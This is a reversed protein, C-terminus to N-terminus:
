RCESKDEILGREILEDRAIAYAIRREPEVQHWNMKANTECPEGRLIEEASSLALRHFPTFREGIGKSFSVWVYKQKEDIRYTVTTRTEGPHVGQIGEDM